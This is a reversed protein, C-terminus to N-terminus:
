IESQNGNLIFGEKNMKDLLDLLHQGKIMYRTGQKKGIVVAKFLQSNNRDIDKKVLKSLTSFGKIWPLVRMDLIQQLSYYEDPYLTKDEINTKM